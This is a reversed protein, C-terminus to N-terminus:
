FSLDKTMDKSLLKTKENCKAKSEVSRDFVQVWIRSM